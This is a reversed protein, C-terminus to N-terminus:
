QKNKVEKLEGKTMYGHWVGVWNLSPTLTPAERNGDWQWDDVSPDPEPRILFETMMGEEWGTYPKGNQDRYPLRIVIYEDDDIFSWDGLQGQDRLEEM